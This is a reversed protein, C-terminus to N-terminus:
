EHRLLACEKCPQGALTRSSHRRLGASDVDAPNAGFIRGFEAEVDTLRRDVEQLSAFLGPAKEARSAPNSEAFFVHTLRNTERIWSHLELIVEPWNSASRPFARASESPPAWGSSSSLVFRWHTIHEREAKLHDQVMRALLRRSSPRLSSLKVRSCIDSLNRLARAEVVASASVKAAEDALALTRRPEHAEPGSDGLAERGSIGAKGSLGAKGTLGAAGWALFSEAGAMPIQACAQAFVEPPVERVRVEVRRIGAVAQILESRRGSTEALGQVTIRGDPERVVEVPEGQCARLRHLAYHVEIEAADQGHSPVTAPATAGKKRRQPDSRGLEDARNAVGNAASGQPAASITAKGELGTLAVANDQDAVLLTGRNPAGLGSILSDAVSRTPELKRAAFQVAGVLTIAVACAAIVAPALRRPAAKPQREESSVAALSVPNSRALQIARETPRELQANRVDMFDGIATEIRALEWQCKRCDALHRKMRMAKGSPMECDLYSLLEECTPHSLQHLWDKFEWRVM